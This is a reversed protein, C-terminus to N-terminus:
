HIALSFDPLGIERQVGWGESPM